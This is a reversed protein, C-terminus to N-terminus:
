SRNGDMLFIKWYRRLIIKLNKGKKKALKENVIFQLTKTNRLLFKQIFDSM